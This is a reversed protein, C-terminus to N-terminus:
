AGQKPAVATQALVVSVLILVAFLVGIGTTAMSADLLVGVLIPSLATSFVM